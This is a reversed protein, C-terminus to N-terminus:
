VIPKKELNSLFLTAEKYTKFRALEYARKGKTYRQVIVLGKSDINIRYSYSGIAKENYITYGLDKYHGVWFDRLSNDVQLCYQLLKINLYKKDRRMEKIGHSNSSLLSIHRSISQIFDHTMGVYVRKHKENVLAYVVAKKNLNM